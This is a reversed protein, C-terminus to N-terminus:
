CAFAWARCLSLPGYQLSNMSSKTHKPSRENTTHAVTPTIKISFSLRYYRYSVLTSRFPIQFLTLIVSSPPPPASLIVVHSLSPHLLPPTLAAQKVHLDPFAASWEMLSCRGKYSFELTWVRRHIFTYM